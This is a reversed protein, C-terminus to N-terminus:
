AARAKCELPVSPLTFRAHNGIVWDFFDPANAVLQAGSFVVVHM